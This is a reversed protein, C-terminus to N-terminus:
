KIVRDARALVNPPITLGIQKATKLNIVFEFKTPREVPLDAPKAGKLIKDVFEAARRFQEPRNQGYTLLGGAEVYRRNPYGTPLKHKRALEILQSQHATFFAGGDILLAEARKNSAAQFARENEAREKAELSLLQVKLARAVAETEKLNDAAVPSSPSWLFGVRTLKPIIDKFLELRKGVMDAGMSTLGTINGGPRALSAVFGSRVAENASVIVIPIDKTASKLAKIAENGIVVIVDPKLRVLEAALEPLRESKGNFYRADVLYSQGQIYGLETLRAYFPTMDATSTAITNALHGIRAIKKPQQAEASFCLAFLLAAFFSLAFPL